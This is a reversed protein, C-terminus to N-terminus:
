GWQYHGRSKQGFESLELPLSKSKVMFNVVRIYDKKDKESMDLEFKDSLQIQKNGVKQFAIFADRLLTLMREDDVERETLSLDVQIIKLKIYKSYLDQFVLLLYSFSKLNHKEYVGLLHAIHNRQFEYSPILEETIEDM